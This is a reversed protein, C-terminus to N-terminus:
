SPKIHPPQRSPLAKVVNNPSTQSFNLIVTGTTPLLEEAFPVVTTGGEGPPLTTGYVPDAVDVIVNPHPLRPKKSSVAKTAATSLVM